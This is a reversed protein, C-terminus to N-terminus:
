YKPKLIGFNRAVLELTKKVKEMITERYGSYVNQHVSFFSFPNDSLKLGTLQIKRKNKM